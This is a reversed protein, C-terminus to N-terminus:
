PAGSSQWSTGTWLYWTSQLTQTYVKGGSLTLTKGFGSTPNGNLVLANGGTSTAPGFTWIGGTADIMSGVPAVISTVPPSVVPPPVVPPVPDAFLSDPHGSHAVAKCVANTASRETIWGKEIGLAQIMLFDESADQWSSNKPIKTRANTLDWRECRGNPYRAWYIDLDAQGRDIQAGGWMLASLAFAVNLDM